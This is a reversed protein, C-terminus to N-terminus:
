KSQRKKWEIFPKTSHLTKQQIFPISRKEPSLQQDSYFAHVPNTFGVEKFADQKSCSYLIKGVASWYAAGLCMPCPEGSAYLVCDSLDLTQLKACAEKIALLEAHASPDCTSEVLNTGSGIIEGNRVVIAAFPGGGNAVNEVAMEVTQELWKEDNM